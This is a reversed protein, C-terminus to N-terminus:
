DKADRDAYRDCHANGCCGASRVSVRLAFDGARRNLYTTAHIIYSGASLHRVIRSNTNGADIDNNQAILWLFGGLRNASWLYLYTDVQSSLDITVTKPASISFDYYRALRARRQPSRCDVTWTGSASASAGVTGLSIFDCARPGATAMPADATSATSTPTVPRPLGSVILDFSGTHGASHTTAEIIYSGTRLGRSIRSNTNSEDLSDNDDNEDVVSRFKGNGDAWWLYLYANRDSSLDIDVETGESLSFGYFRAYRGSRSRSACDSAWSGSVSKAPVIEGLSVAWCGSEPTPTPTYTATDSVSTTIYSTWNSYLDRWKGSRVSHAYSVGSTLGRVVASSGSFDITFENFPLVRWRPPNAHGDWQMVEYRRTDSADNWDLSIGGNSSTGSLNTPMPPKVGISTSIFPSWDSNGNASVARIRHAYTVGYELGSVVAKTETASFAIGPNGSPLARWRLRRPSGDWQQVEYGSAGEVANWTLTITSGTGTGALGSPTALTTQAAQGSAGGVGASRAPASDPANREVVGGGNPDSPTSTAASVGGGVQATAPADSLLLAYAVFLFALALALGALLRM